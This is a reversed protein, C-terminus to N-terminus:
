KEKTTQSITISLIIQWLLMMNAYFLSNIFNANISWAFLIAFAACTPPLINQSMKKIWAFPKKEKPPTLIFYALRIWFTLFMIMGTIGTTALLLLWSSDIGAGSNGGNQTDHIMNNQKKEYRTLNFGIGTIPRQTFLHIAQYYSALRLDASLKRDINRQTEIRSRPVIFLGYTILLVLLLVVLIKYAKKLLAYLAIGICAALYASRSFTTLLTTTFLLLLIIKEKQSPIPNKSEAKQALTFIIIATMAMGFFNPDFWTSVARAFHPDYGMLELITLNPLFIMQLIGTIALIVAVLILTRIWQNQSKTQTIHEILVIPLLFYAGWRLPYLLATLIEKLPVHQMRLALSIVFMTIIILVWMSYNKLLQNKWPQYKTIGWLLVLAVIIDAISMFLDNHLKIRGLEGLILPLCLISPVLWKSPLKISM